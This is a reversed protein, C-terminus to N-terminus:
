ARGAERLGRPPNGLLRRTEAGELARGHQEVRRPSSATWWSADQRADDHAPVRLNVGAELLQEFYQHSTQRIPKADTREPCCSASTSERSRAAGGGGEPHSTPCSTRTPSTSSRGRPPSPRSTCSGCPITRAPPRATSGRTCRSAKAPPPWPRPSSPSSRPASSSRAAPVHAWNDVFASQLTAALPGTVQIMIDRWHEESDANGVWKEAVAMGGTFAVSGDLVIARRHNRKHFRSLKGFQASRFVKVKGGAAKLRDIDEDPAHLGVADLLLPSCALARGRPSSPSCKTAPSARRGSTSRSTSARSRGRLAAYLAPFFQDGNNLLQATGGARLPAGAVGAMGIM